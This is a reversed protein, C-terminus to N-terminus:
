LKLRLAFHKDFMACVKAVETDDRLYLNWAHMFKQKLLIKVELYTGYSAADSDTPKKRPKIKSFRFSEM